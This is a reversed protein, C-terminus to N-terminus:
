LRFVQSFPPDPGRAFVPGFWRSSPVRYPRRVMRPPRLPRAARLLGLVATALAVLVAAYQLAVVHGFTGGGASGGDHGSPGVGAHSAAAAAAGVPSASGSLEHFAGFFGHCVLLTVVLLAALLRARTQDIATSSLMARM